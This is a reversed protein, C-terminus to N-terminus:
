RGLLSLEASTLVPQAAAAPPVGPVSSPQDETPGPWWGWASSFHWHQYCLPAPVSSVYILGSGRSGSKILFLDFTHSPWSLTNANAAVSYKQGGYSAGAEWTLCEQRLCHAKEEGGALGPWQRSKCWNPQFTNLVLVAGAM